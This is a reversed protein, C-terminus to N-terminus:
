QSVLVTPIDGDALLKPIARLCDQRALVSPQLTCHWTAQSRAAVAQKRLASQDAARRVVNYYALLMSIVLTVSLTGLM